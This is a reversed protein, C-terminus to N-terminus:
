AFLIAVLFGEDFNEALAKKPFPKNFSPIERLLM